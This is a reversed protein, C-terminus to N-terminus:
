VEDEASNSLLRFSGKRRAPTADSLPMDKAPLLGSDVPEGISSSSVEDVYM